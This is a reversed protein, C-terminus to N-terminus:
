LPLMLRYGGNYFPIFGSFSEHPITEVEANSGFNEYFSSSEKFDEILFDKIASDLDKPLKMHEM